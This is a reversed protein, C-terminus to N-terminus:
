KGSIVVYEADSVQSEVKIKTTRGKKDQEFEISESYEHIETFEVDEAYQRMMRLDAAPDGGRGRNSQERFREKWGRKESGASNSRGSSGNAREYAERARKEEARSPMGMMHRMRDEMKGMAYAKLWASIRPGALWLILIILLFIALGINM